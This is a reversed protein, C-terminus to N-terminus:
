DIDAILDLTRMVDNKARDGFSQYGRLAALAYEKADAFRGSRALTLAVNFRTKAAGNVDGAWENHRISTQRHEFARDMDGADAYINGLQSHIAGL